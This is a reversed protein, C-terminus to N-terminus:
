FRRCKGGSKTPHVTSNPKFAQGEMVRHQLQAFGPKGRAASGLSSDDYRLRPWCPRHALPTKPFSALFPCVAAQFTRETWTKPLPMLGQRTKGFAQATAPATLVLGSVCHSLCTRGETNRKALGQGETRGGDVECALRM